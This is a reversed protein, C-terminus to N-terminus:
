HADWHAKHRRCRDCKFLYACTDGGKAQLAAFLDNADMKGPDILNDFFYRPDDPGDPSAMVYRWEGLYVMPSGCCYQWHEGQWTIYQPTSLLALDEKRTLPDDWSLMGGELDHTVLGRGDRFCTCCLYIDGGPSEPFPVATGCTPCGGSAQDEVNLLVRTGCNSCHRVLGGDLLTFGPVATRGCSTCDGSPEYNSAEEVPARFLPFPVGLEDFTTM